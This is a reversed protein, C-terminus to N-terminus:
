MDNIRLYFAFFPTLRPSRGPQCRKKGYGRSISVTGKLPGQYIRPTNGWFIDFLKEVIM